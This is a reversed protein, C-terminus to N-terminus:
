ATRPGDRHRALLDKVFRGLTWEEQRIREVEEDSYKVGYRSELGLLAYVDDIDYGSSMVLVLPDLPLFHHNPLSLEKRIIELIAVVGALPGCESWAGAPFDTRRRLQSEVSRRAVRRRVNETPSVVMRNLPSFVRVLWCALVHGLRAREQQEIQEDFYLPKDM